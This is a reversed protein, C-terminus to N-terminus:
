YRTACIKSAPLGREPTLSGPNSDVTKWKIAAYGQPHQETEMLRYDTTLVGGVGEAPSSQPSLSLLWM